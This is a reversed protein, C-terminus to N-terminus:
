CFLLHLLSLYRLFFLCVPGSGGSTSVQEVHEVENKEIPEETPKPNSNPFLDQLDEKFDTEIQDLEICKGRGDMFANGSCRTGSISHEYDYGFQCDTMSCYCDKSTVESNIKIWQDKGQCVQCVNDCLDCYEDTVGNTVSKMLSKLCKTESKFYNEDIFSFM